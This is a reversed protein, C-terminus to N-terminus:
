AASLNTTATTHHHLRPASPRLQMAKDSTQSCGCDAKHSTKLLISASLYCPIHAWTQAQSAQSCGAQDSLMPTWGCATPLTRDASAMIGQRIPASDLRASGRYEPRCPNRGKLKKANLPQFCAFTTMKHMPSIQTAFHKLVICTHRALQLLSHVESRPSARFCKLWTVRVCDHM